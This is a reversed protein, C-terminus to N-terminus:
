NKNLVRDMMRDPLLRKLFAFVKTPTTVRYRIKPNDSKIAHLVSTLVADAPLTFKAPVDSLLRAKVANYGEIHRSNQADINEQFKTHANERFASEIPGPEILSIKINTNSLELRMTDTLGELAYKSSNYAGRYKLCVFGLVSSIQIIRAYKASLMSPILKNTIEQTGFVNTEFQQRLTERSLDEVAGPQGYAGNNILVDIKGQTASLVEEVGTQISESSDLDIVPSELGLGILRNSDEQKRCSAFVRYGEKQLGLALCKGIGTSCGTILINIDIQKPM